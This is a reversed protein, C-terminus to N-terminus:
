NKDLVELIAETVNAQVEANSIHINKSDSVALRKQACFSGDVTQAVFGLKGQIASWMMDDASGPAILYEVMVERDRGLRHARDEAQLLVSPVWSLEAFFVVDAATLTLGTGGVALSLLAIRIAADSQFIKVLEGRAKQNTNGDIRICQVNEREALMEVANLVILHQAFVLLKPKKPDRLLQTVRTVISQLKCWATKHFISSMISQKRALLEPRSDRDERICQWIEQLENTLPALQRMSTPSLEVTVVRRTKPPLPLDMEEKTRRIMAASLIAHLENAKTVTRNSNSYIGGCYRTQFEEYSMFPTGPSYYLASLLPYLESPRSLAPTGSVLIIKKAAQLLSLAVQSRYTKVNRLAHCEDAIVIDFQPMNLRTLSGYTVVIYSVPVKVDWADRLSTSMLSKIQSSNTPAHVHHLPLKLWRSIAEFWSSRLTTPCLVLVNTSLTQRYFEAMALAQLTKGLGMDDALLTRGNHNIIGRLVGEQQFPYLRPWITGTLTNEISEPSTSSIKTRTLICHILSPPVPIAIAHHNAIALLEDADSLAFSLDRHLQNQPKLALPLIDKHFATQFSPRPRLTLVVSHQKRLSAHPLHLFAYIPPSFTPVPVYSPHSCHHTANRLNQPSTIAPCASPIASLLLDYEEATIPEEEPPSM